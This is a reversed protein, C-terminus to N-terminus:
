VWKGRLSLTFTLGNFKVRFRGFFTRKKVKCPQCVAWQKPYWKNTRTNLILANERYDFDETSFGGLLIIEESNLAAACAGTIGYPLNPGRSVVWKKKVYTVKETSKLISNTGVGGFLWLTGDYAIASAQYVRASKLNTAFVWDKKLLPDYTFCQKTRPGTCWM